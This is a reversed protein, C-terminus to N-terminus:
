FVNIYLFFLLYINSIYKLYRQVIYLSVYIYIRMRTIVRIKIFYFLIYYYITARFFIMKFIAILYICFDNNSYDTKKLYKKKEKYQANFHIQIQLFNYSLIKFILFSM